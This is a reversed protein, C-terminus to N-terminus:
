QREPEMLVVAALVSTFGLSVLTRAAPTSDSDTYCYVVIQTRKDEPFRSLNKEIEDNLVFFATDPIEEKCKHHVHVWLFDKNKLMSKLQAPTIDWYSGGNVKVERGQMPIPSAKGCAPLVVAALMLISLLLIARKM